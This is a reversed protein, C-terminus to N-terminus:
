GEVIKKSGLYNMGSEAVEASAAAVRCTKIMPGGVKTKIGKSWDKLGATEGESHFCEGPSIKEGRSGCL